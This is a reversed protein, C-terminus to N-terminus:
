SREGSVHIFGSVVSRRRLGVLRNMFLERWTPAILRRRRDDRRDSRASGPPQREAAVHARRLTRVRVRATRPVFRPVVRVLVPIGYRALAARTTIRDGNLMVVHIQFLRKGLTRGTRLAYPVFYLLALLVIALGLGASGSSRRAESDHLDPRKSDIATPSGESAAQAQKKTALATANPQLRGSKHKELPLRISCTTAGRAQGHVPLCRGQREADASQRDPDARRRHAQSREPLGPRPPRHWGDAALDAARRARDSRCGDRARPRPQAAPARQEAVVPRRRGSPRSCARRVTRWRRPARPAGTPRPRRGPTLRAGNGNGVGDDDDEDLVDVDGGCGARPEPPRSMSRRTTAVGSTRIASCKGRPACRRKRPAPRASHLMTRASRPVRAPKPRSPMRCVSKIPRGSPTRRRAPRWAWSTTHTDDSM